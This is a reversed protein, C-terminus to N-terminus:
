DNHMNGLRIRMGMYILGHRSSLGAHIYSNSLYRLIDFHMYVSARQSVRVRPQVALLTFPPIRIFGTINGQALQCEFETHMGSLFSISTQSWSLHLWGVYLGQDFTYSYVYRNGGGYRNEGSFSIATSPIISIHQQLFHFCFDIGRTHLGLEVGRAPFVLLACVCTSAVIVRVVGIKHSIRRCIAKM